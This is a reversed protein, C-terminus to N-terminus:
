CGGSAPGCAYAAPTLATSAMSDLVVPAYAAGLAVLAAFTLVLLRWRTNILFTQKM